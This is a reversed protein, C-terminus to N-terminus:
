YAFYPGYGQSTKACIAVGTEDCAIATYVNLGFFFPLGWDFTQSSTPCTTSSPTVPCGALDGFASNAASLNDANGVSFNVMSTPTGNTGENTASLSAESAPCYFGTNMTCPTLTSDVFYLANSGSDIYSQTLTQSNFVTRIEGTLPDGPLVNSATMKNNAETDIGFILQGSVSPSGGAAVSLMQILVGNNDAVANSSNTFSAVPNSMQQNLAVTSATCSSPSSCVYYFPNNGQPGSACGSGCDTVFPGVGLIGNAGFTAVTDEATGNNQCAAPVTSYTSDGIIQVNLGSAKEGAIQVDATKIPGWSYGDAFQTCEALPMGSAKESVTTLASALSPQLAESILRLGYSGTDVQVHDITQCNATGPACVVVTVYLINM